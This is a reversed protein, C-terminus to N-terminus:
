HRSYYILNVTNTLGSKVITGIKHYDQIRKRRFFAEMKRVAEIVKCNFQRFIASTFATNKMSGREFEAM